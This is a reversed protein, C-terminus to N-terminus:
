LSRYRFSTSVTYDTDGEIAVAESLPSIIQVVLGGDHQLQLNNPFLGTLWAIIEGAMSTGVNRPTVVSFQYVGSYTTMEGALDDARTVAPLQYAALYVNDDPREKNPPDFHLNQYKVPLDRLEAATKLRSEYLQRIIIQSM